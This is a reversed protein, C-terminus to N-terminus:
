LEGVNLTMLDLRVSELQDKQDDAFTLGQRIARPIESVRRSLTQPQHAIYEVRRLQAHQEIVTRAAAPTAAYTLYDDLVRM